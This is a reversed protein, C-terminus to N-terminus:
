RYSKCVPGLGIRQPFSLIEMEPHWCFTKQETEALNSDNEFGNLPRARYVHSIFRKMVHSTYCFTFGGGFPPPFKTLKLTSFAYWNRSYIQNPPPPFTTQKNTSVSQKCKINPSWGLIAVQKNAHINTQKYFETQGFLALKSTEKKTRAFKFFLYFFIQMVATMFKFTHGNTVTMFIVFHWWVSSHDCM